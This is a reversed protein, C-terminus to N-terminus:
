EQSFSEVFPLLKRAVLVSARESIHDSYGYLPVGHLASGCIRNKMDCLLDLPDFIRLKGAYKMQLIELVERYQRSYEM